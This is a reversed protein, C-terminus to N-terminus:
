SQILDEINITLSAGFKIGGGGKGLVGEKFINIVSSQHQHYIIWRGLDGGERGRKREQRKVHKKM